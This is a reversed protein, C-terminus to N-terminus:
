RFLLTLLCAIVMVGFVFRGFAFILDLISELNM